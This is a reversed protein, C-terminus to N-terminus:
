DLRGEVQMQHYATEIYGGAEDRAEICEWRVSQVTHGTTATYEKLARLIMSKLMDSATKNMERCETDSM